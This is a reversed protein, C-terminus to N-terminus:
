IPASPVTSRISLSVSASVAPSSIVRIMSSSSKGLIQGQAAASIGAAVPAEVSVIFLNPKSIMAPTAIMESAARTKKISAELAGEPEVVRIMSGGAGCDCGCDRVGSGAGAVRATVGGAGEALGEVAVYVLVRDDELIPVERVLIDDLENSTLGPRDRLLGEIWDYHGPYRLTKYDLNRIKGAFHDPLNAAGGSTLAEELREGDFV